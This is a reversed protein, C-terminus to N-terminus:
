GWFWVGFGRAEGGGGKMVVTRLVVGELEEVNGPWYYEELEGMAGGSFGRGVYGRERLIEGVMGAIEGVRERLSTLVVRLM